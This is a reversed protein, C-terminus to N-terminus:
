NIEKELWDAWFTMGTKRNSAAMIAADDYFSDNQYHTTSIEEFIAGTNSAFSHPTGREVTILEGVRCDRTVGDLTLQMDGFLIHFTEEKRQHTHCPNEQGPLLLIIKKCYERNICNIMTCGFREFQEIGYHHSFELELKNQLHIGSNKLLSAIKRVMDLIWARRDNERVGDTSIPEGAAVPNNMFHDVYKSLDNALLQDPSCPIALFTNDPNLADSEALDRGAFVGRKLGRLDAAEQDSIPRRQDSVGCMQIATQAANLWAQLQEPTSSYANIGYKETPVGVHREFVRAGKGVAIKVADCNDPNEHTSYGITVTPYRQRFFDIQNLQLERDPTPYSGVCHMLCLRKGRHEFFSVVRDIDGLAAGATSAVIPMDVEAIRELLPWDTFSCSALKLIDYKHKEILDVSKEDFPTCATLLGCHEAETKLRLFDQEALRTEQFRKVYKIDFRDRYDPHIFTDLDRYQFKVAFQFPLGECAQRCQRIVRLGHEVDGMHNNALEFIFLNDFIESM